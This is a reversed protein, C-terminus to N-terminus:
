WDTDGHQRQQRPLQLQEDGGVDAGVAAAAATEYDALYDVVYGADASAAYDM